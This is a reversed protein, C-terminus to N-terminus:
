YRLLERLLSEAGPPTQTEPPSARPSAAPTEDTATEPALGGGRLGSPRLARGTESTSVDDSAPATSAAPPATVREIDFCAESRANNGGNCSIM